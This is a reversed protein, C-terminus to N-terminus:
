ARGARKKAEEGDAPDKAWMKSALYIGGATALLALGGYVVARGKTNDSMRSYNSNTLWSIFECAFTQDNCERGVLDLHCYEPHVRAWEKIWAEIEEDTKM